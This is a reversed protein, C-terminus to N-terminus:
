YECIGLNLGWNFWTNQHYVGIIEVSPAPLCFPSFDLTTKLLMVLELGAPYVHSEYVLLYILITTETNM